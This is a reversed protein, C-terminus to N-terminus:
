LRLFHASRLLVFAECWDLAKQESVDEEQTVPREQADFIAASGSM